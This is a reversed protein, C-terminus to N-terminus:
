INEWQCWHSHISLLCWWRRSFCSFSLGQVGELTFTSVITIGKNVVRNRYERSFASLCVSQQLVCDLPLSFLQEESLLIIPTYPLSHKCILLHWSTRRQTATVVVVNINHADLIRTISSTCYFLVSAFEFSSVVCLPTWLINLLSAARIRPECSSVRKRSVVFVFTVDKGRDMTEASLDTDAWFKLTSSLAKVAM